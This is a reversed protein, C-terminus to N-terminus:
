PEIESSIIQALDSTYIIATKNLSIHTFDTWINMDAYKDYLHYVPVEFEDSIDDLVSTFIEFDSDDLTDLFVRPYPVFLKLHSLAMISKLEISNTIKKMTTNAAIPM